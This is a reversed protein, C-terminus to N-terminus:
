HHEPGTTRIDVRTSHGNHIRELSGPLWLQREEHWFKVKAHLQLLRAPQRRRLTMSTYSTAQGDLSGAAAAGGVARAGTQNPCGARSRPARSGQQRKRQSAAPYPHSGHYDGLSGHILDARMSPYKLAPDPCCFRCCYPTGGYMFGSFTRCRRECCPSTRRM